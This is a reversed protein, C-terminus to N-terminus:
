VAAHRLDRLENWPPQGHGHDENRRLVGSPARAGPLPSTSGCTLHWAIRGVVFELDPKGPDGVRELGQIDAICAPYIGAMGRLDIHRPRHRPQPM